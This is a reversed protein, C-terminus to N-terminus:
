LTHIHALESRLMGKTKGLVNRAHSSFIYKIYEYIKKKKIKKFFHLLFIKLHKAQYTIFICRTLHQEPLPPLCLSLSLPFPLSVFLLNNHLIIAGFNENFKSIVCVCLLLTDSTLRSVPKLWEWEEKGRERECKCERGRGRGRATGKVAQQFYCVRQTISCTDLGRLSHSGSGSVYEFSIRRM